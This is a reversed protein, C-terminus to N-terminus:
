MNRPSQRELEIVWRYHRRSKALHILINEAFFDIRYNILIENKGPHFQTTNHGDNTVSILRLLLFHFHFDTM